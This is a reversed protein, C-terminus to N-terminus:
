ISGGEADARGSLDLPNKSLWQRVDSFFADENLLEEIREVSAIM